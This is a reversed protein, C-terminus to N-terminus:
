KSDLNDDYTNPMSSTPISALKHSSAQSPQQREWDRKKKKERTKALEEADELERTLEEVEGTLHGKDVRAQNLENIGKQLDAQEKAINNETRAALEVIEDIKETKEQINTEKDNMLLEHENLLERHRGHLTSLENQM